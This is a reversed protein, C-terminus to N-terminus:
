ICPRYVKCLFLYESNVMDNNKWYEYNEELCVVLPCVIKRREGEAEDVYYVLSM